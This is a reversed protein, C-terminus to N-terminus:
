AVEEFDADVVDDAGPPGASAGAQPGRRTQGQDHGGGAGGAAGYASEALRHAIHKLEDSLRRIEATDEGAM